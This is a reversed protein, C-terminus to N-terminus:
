AVVYFDELSEYTADWTLVEPCHDGGELLDLEASDTVIRGHGSQENHDAGEVTFDVSDSFTCDLETLDLINCKFALEVEPVTASALNLSTKLLEIPLLLDVTVTCDDALGMIRCDTWDVKTVTVKQRDPFSALASVGATALSGQCTISAVSSSLLPPKTAVLHLSETLDEEACTLSNHEKCLATGAGETQSVVHVHELPELLFDVDFNACFFSERSIADESATVMGHGTGAQHLAGEIDLEMGALKYICHSVLAHPSCMVDIKGNEATLVGLDLSDQSLTFTPMEKVEIQCDAHGSLVGCGSIKFETAHLQQPDAPELVEATLLLSLCLVTLPNLLNVPNSNVLHITKVLDKEPCPSEHIKCLATVGEGMAPADGIAALM